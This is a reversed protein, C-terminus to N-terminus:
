TAFFGQGLVMVESMAFIECTQYVNKSMMFMCTTKMSFVCNNLYYKLLLVYRGYYYWLLVHELSAFLIYVFFM